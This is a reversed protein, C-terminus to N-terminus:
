PNEGRAPKNKVENEKYGKLGPSKQIVGFAALIFLNM